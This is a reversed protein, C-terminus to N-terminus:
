SDLPTQSPQEIIQMPHKKAVLSCLEIFRDQSTKWKMLNIDKHVWQVNGEIYGLDSNIRDLSATYIYKAADNATKPLTIERNTLSCRQEQREWLCDLYDSTITFDLNRVRAGRKMQTWSILAIYKSVLTLGYNNCGCSKIRGNRLETGKRVCTKGCDCLCNYYLYNNDRKESLSIVLLKFYKKGIIDTTRTKSM